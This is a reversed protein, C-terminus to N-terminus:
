SDVNSPRPCPASAASAATCWGTPRSPAAAAAPLPRPPTRYASRRAAGKAHVMLTSNLRAARAGVGTHIMAPVRSPSPTAGSWQRPATYANHSRALPSPTLSSLSLSLGRTQWLGHRPGHMQQKVQKMVHKNRGPSRRLVGTCPQGSISSWRPREASLREAEACTRSTEQQGSTAPRVRAHIRYETKCSVRRSVHIEAAARHKRLREDNDRRAAHGSSFPRTQSLAQSSLHSRTRRGTM